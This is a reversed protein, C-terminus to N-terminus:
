LPPPGPIAATDWEPVFAGNEDTWPEKSSNIYTDNREAIVLWSITDSSTTDEATIIINGDEVRGKVAGWGTDNQVWVQPNKTLATFTGVTMNNSAEDISATATGDSLTVTGRYVLDYRPSEVFGHVLTKNEEDLPHPIKFTGSAKSISGTMQVNGNFYSTGAYDVVFKWVSFTSFGISNAGYAYMGTDTDGSFSYTPSSASGSGLRIPDPHTYSGGGSAAITLNDGSPTLTINSGAVITLDDNGSGSGGATLRLIANTSSDVWTHTYTTNTDSGGGHSTQSHDYLAKRSAAIDSDTNSVNHSDSICLGTISRAILQRAHVHPIDFPYPMGLDVYSVLACGEPDNGDGGMLILHKGNHLVTDSSSGSDARYLWTYGSSGGIANGSANAHAWQISNSAGQGEHDFFIGLEGLTIRGGGFYAKGDTAKIEFQTTDTTGSRSIGQIATYDMKIYSQSSAPNFAEGGTIFLNSSSGGQQLVIMQTDILGGKIETTASNIALAVDQKVWETTALIQDAPHTVAIYAIDTDTAYWIDNVATSTPPSSTAAYFVTAGSGGEPANQNRVVWASGTYVKIPVPDLSTDFWLDNTRPNNPPNDSVTTISKETISTQTGSTFRDASISNAAIETATLTGAVLRDATITRTRIHDAIIVDGALVVASITPKKANFPFITPKDGDTAASVTVTALLIKADGIATGHTTTLSPALAGEVGNIYLYHTGNGMGVAAGANITVTDGNAFTLTANTDESGNDWEIANYATGRIELDSTWARAGKKLLASTMTANHIIQDGEVKPPSGDSVLNGDFWFSPFEVGAIASGLRINDRDQTYSGVLITKIHYANTTPNEGEPDVYLVYKNTGVMGNSGLGHTADSTGSTSGSGSAVIQYATQDSTQLTGATWEIRNNAPYSFTGDFSALQTSKPPNQHPAATEVADAAAGTM